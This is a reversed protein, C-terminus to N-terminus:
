KATGTVSIFFKHLKHDLDLHTGQLLNTESLFHNLLSETQLSHWFNLNKITIRAPMRVICGSTSETGFYQGIFM